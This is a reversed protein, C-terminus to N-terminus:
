TSSTVSVGRVHRESYLRRQNPSGLTRVNVWGRWQIFFHEALTFAGDLIISFATASIVRYSGNGTHQGHHGDEIEVGNNRHGTISIHQLGTVAVDGKFRRTAGQSGGAWAAAVRHSASGGTAAYRSLQGAADGRASRRQGADSRRDTSARRRHLTILITEHPTRPTM